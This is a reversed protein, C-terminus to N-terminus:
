LYQNLKIQAMKAADEADDTRYWGSLGVVFGDEPHLVSGFIEGDGNRRMWNFIYGGELEITGDNKSNMEMEKIKKTKENM